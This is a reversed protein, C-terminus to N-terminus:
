VGDLRGTWAVGVFAGDDITAGIREIGPSM